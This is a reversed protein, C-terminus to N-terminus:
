NKRGSLADKGFCFDLKKDNRIAFEPKAVKFIKKSTLNFLFANKDKVYYIKDREDWSKM